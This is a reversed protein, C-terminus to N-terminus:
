PLLILDRRPALGKREYLSDIYDLDIVNLHDIDSSRSSLFSAADWSFLQVSSSYAQFFLKYDRRIDGGLKFEHLEIYIRDFSQLLKQSFLADFLSYEFGEIDCKLILKHCYPSVLHLFSILNFSPVITKALKSLPKNSVLTSAESLPYSLDRFFTAPRHTINAAGPYFVFSGIDDLYNSNSLLDDLKKKLDLDYAAEFSFVSWQSPDPIMRHFCEVSELLHSGLDLFVNM